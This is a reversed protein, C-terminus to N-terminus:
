NTLNKLEKQVEDKYERLTWTKKADESVAGPTNSNDWGGRTASSGYAPKPRAVNAFETKELAVKVAAVLEDKTWVAKTNSSVGGPTNTADWSGETAASAKPAPKESTWAAQTSTSAKTPKPRAVNAFEPRALVTRVAAVIQDKTWTDKAEQSVAGPTNSTDWGANTSASPKGAPSKYEKWAAQTSSSPKTAKPRAANAFEANEQLTRMCIEHILADRDMTNKSM